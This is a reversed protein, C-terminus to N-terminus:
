GVGAAFDNVHVLLDSGTSAIRSPASQGVYLFRRMPDYDGSAVTREKKLPWTADPQGVGRLRGVKLSRAAASARKKPKVTSKKAKAAVAELIMATYKPLTLKGTM